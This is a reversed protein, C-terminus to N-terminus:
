CIVKIDAFQKLKEQLGSFRIGNNGSYNYIAMQFAKAMGILYAQEKARSIGTYLIKKQLLVFDATTLTCILFKAESGQSKHYTMAYALTLNNWAYKDKYVAVKGDDFTVEVEAANLRTITGTEGNFVGTSNEEGLKVVIDYDNSTQM